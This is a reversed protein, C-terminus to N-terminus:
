QMEEKEVEETMGDKQIGQKFINGGDIARSELDLEGKEMLSNEEAEEVNDVPILSDVIGGDIIASTDPIPLDNITPILDEPFEIIETPLEESESAIEEQLINPPPIDIGMQPSEEVHNEKYNTDPFNLTDKALQEEYQETDSPEEKEEEKHEVWRYGISWCVEEAEVCEGVKEQDPM